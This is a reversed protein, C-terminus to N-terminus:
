PCLVRVNDVYVTAAERGHYVVQFPVAISALDATTFQALPIRYSTRAMGLTLPVLTESGDADASDKMGLGVQVGERSAWLDAVLVSCARLDMPQGASIFASAWAQDPQFDIQLSTGASRLWGSTGRENSIGLTYGAAL